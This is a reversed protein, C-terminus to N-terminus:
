QEAEQSALGTFLALLERPADAAFGMAFNAASERQFRETRAAMAEQYARFAAPLNTPRAAVAHALDVADAMALNVGEGAFPSMVHAADGILTVNGKAAWFEGTPLVYIPRTVMPGESQVLMERYCEGWERFHEVLEDHSFGGRSQAEPVPIAAYASVEDGPECHAMIGRGESLAFLSGKGVLAKVAPYQQSVNPYRLEVFTIGSYLPKQGTLLSRVKSWAGDAGVLADCVHTSGNELQLLFGTGQREVSTVRSNWRIIGKPLAEVVLKRLAGRDVEPRSGDGEDQYLIHGNKDRMLTADAGELVLAMAAEYLGAARLAPKGTGENLNLMGGQHRSDLSADAELICVAIGQRHLMYALLPGAVGAGIITIM